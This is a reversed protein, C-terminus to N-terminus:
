KRRQWVMAHSVIYQYKRRHERIVLPFDKAEVLEFHPDLLERLADESMRDKGNEDVYGGLWLERKTYDDLWSYPSITVLVGGPKLISNEGWMQSLCDVPKPLRCLLNSLLIADFSGIGEPLACADGLVFEAKKSLAPDVSAVEKTSIAAEVPCSFSIEKGAQLAKAANIFSESFDVGVVHDFSKALAFATGGVACGLDLANGKPVSLKSCTDVVLQASRAPFECADKPGFEFPLQKDSSGFHLVMFQSFYDDTEYNLQGALAEESKELQKNETTSM